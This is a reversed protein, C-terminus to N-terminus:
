SSAPRALHQQLSQERPLNVHEQTLNGIRPENDVTVAGSIPLIIKINTRLFINKGVGNFGFIAVREGFDIRTRIVPATALPITDYGLVIGSLIISGNAGADLPVIDIKLPPRDLVKQVTEKRDRFSAISKAKKGSRGAPRM